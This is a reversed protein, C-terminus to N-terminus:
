PSDCFGREWKHSLPPPSPAHFEDGDDQGEVFRLVQRAAQRAQGADRVGHQDGVAEGGIAM